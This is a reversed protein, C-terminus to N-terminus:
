LAMLMTAKAKSRTTIGDSVPTTGSTMGTTMGSTTGPTTPENSKTTTAKKTEGKKKGDFNASIKGPSGPAQPQPLKTGKKKAMSEENALITRDEDTAKLTTPMYFVTTTTATTPQELEPTSKTGCHSTSNQSNGITTTTRASPNPQGEIAEGIAARNFGFAM